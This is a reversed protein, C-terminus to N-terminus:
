DNRCRRCTTENLTAVNGCACKTMRSTRAQHIVVHAYCEACLERARGLGYDYRAPNECEERKCKRRM